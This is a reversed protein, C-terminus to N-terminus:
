YCFGEERIFRMFMARPMKVTEFDAMRRLAHYEGVKRRFKNEDPSMVSMAFEVTNGREIFAVTDQGNNRVFGKNGVTFEQMMDRRLEKEIDNLKTNSTM